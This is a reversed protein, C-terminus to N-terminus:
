RMEGGRSIVSLSVCVSAAEDINFGKWLRLFKFVLLVFSFFSSCFFSSLQAEEKKKMYLDDDTNNDKFRCIVSFFPSFQRTANDQHILFGTWVFCVSLSMNIKTGKPRAWPVCTRWVDCRTYQQQFLDVWSAYSQEKKTRQWYMHRSVRSKCSWVEPTSKHNICHHSPDLTKIKQGTEKHGGGGGYNPPTCQFLTTRRDM